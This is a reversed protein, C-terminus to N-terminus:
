NTAIVNISQNTNSFAWNWTFSTLFTKDNKVVPLLTVLPLNVVPMTSVLTSFKVVPASNQSKIPVFSKLTKEKSNVTVEVTSASKSGKGRSCFHNSVARYLVTIMTYPFIISVFRLSCTREPIRSRTKCRDIYIYPILHSQGHQQWRRYIEASILLM